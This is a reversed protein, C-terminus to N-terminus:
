QECQQEARRLTSAFDDQPVILSLTAVSNEREDSVTDLYAGKLWREETETAFKQRGHVIRRNNFIVCQGPKLKHSFQAKESNLLESFARAARHYQKLHNGLDGDDHIDQGNNVIFPVQFPPSWNVNAITPMPKHQAENLDELPRRKHKELEITSKTDRYYNGNKDYGYTVPFKCLAYFLYFNPPRTSTGDYLSRAAAFSDAFM